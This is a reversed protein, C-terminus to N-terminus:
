TKSSEDQAEVCDGVAMALVEDLDFQSEILILQTDPHL